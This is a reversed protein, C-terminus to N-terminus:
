SSAQSQQSAPPDYASANLWEDWNADNVGPTVSLTEGGSGLQADDFFSQEQGFKQMSINSMDSASPALTAHLGQISPYDQSHKGRSQMNPYSSEFDFAGGSFNDTGPMNFNIYPNTLDFNSGLFSQADGSFATTFAGYSQGNNHAGMNDNYTPRSNEKQQPTQQQAFSGPTFFPKRSPIASSASMPVNPDISSVSPPIRVAPMSMRRDNTSPIVPSNSSTGTLEQPSAISASRSHGFQSDQPRPSSYPAQRYTTPSQSQRPQQSLLPSPYATTRQVYQQPQGYQSNYSDDVAQQVAARLAVNTTLFASLRQNFGIQQGSNIHATLRRYQSPMDDDEEEYMEENVVDQETVRLSRGTRRKHIESARRASEVRAELSRDSRRSAAIYAREQNEEHTRETKIAKAPPM